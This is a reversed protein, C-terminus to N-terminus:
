DVRQGARIWHGDRYVYWIVPEDSLGRERVVADPHRERLKEQLSEVTAIGDDILRQVLAAFARDDRPNAVVYPREM